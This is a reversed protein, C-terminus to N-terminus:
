VRYRLTEELQSEGGEAAFYIEIKYRGTPWGSDPPHIQFYAQRINNTLSLSRDFAVVGSEVGDVRDAIVRCKIDTEEATGAVEIVVFVDDMPAYTNVTTTGDKDRSLKANRLRVTSRDYNCAFITTILLGVACVLNLRNTKM